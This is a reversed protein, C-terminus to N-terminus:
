SAGRNALILQQWASHFRLAVYAHIRSQTNLYLFKRISSIPAEGALWPRYGVIQSELQFDISKRGQQTRIHFRLFGYNGPKGPDPRALWSECIPVDWVGARRQKSTGFTMISFNPLGRFHLSTTRNSPDLMTEFVGFTVNRRCLFNAWSEVFDKSITRALRDTMRFDDPTSWSSWEQSYAVGTHRELDAKWTFSRVLFPQMPLLIVFVLAMAIDHSVRGYLGSHLRRTSM